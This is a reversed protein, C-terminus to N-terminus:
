DDRAREVESASTLAPVQVLLIGGLVNFVRSVLLKHAPLGDRLLDIPAQAHQTRTGGTDGNKLM